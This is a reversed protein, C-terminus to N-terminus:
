STRGVTVDGATSSIVTAHSEVKVPATVPQHKGDGAQGRGDGGWAYVDGHTAIAYSTNGGSALLDYRVGPPPFIEIPSPRSRFQGNGLQAWRDNGWAYIRGDALMVLTQGNQSTSGGQTVQAVRGPLSVRVPVDSPRGISGNGLQGAADYGWDYYTGDSLLAGENDYAAVLAVVPAGHLGKVKAPVESAYKRGDGLVGDRNNGCSYVTGDADYVAHGGAGALATVDSLPVRVPRYQPVQNGQCAWGDKDLGWAWANGRTDVALGGDFPMVDGPIYAITVRAPFHVQVATNFSNRDSGDGLQGNTGQGWAWVTGNALLAYQTSNSTGLQVVPDPLSISHPKPTVDEDARVKDGFFFGWHEIQRPGLHAKRPGRHATRVAAGAAVGGPLNMLLALGMVM